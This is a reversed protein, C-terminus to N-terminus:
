SAPVKLLTGIAYGVLASITGILAMELLTSTYAVAGMSVSEAFTAVLGAVLVILM